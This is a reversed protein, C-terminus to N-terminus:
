HHHFGIKDHKHDGPGLHFEACLEPWYGKAKILLEIAERVAGHGGPNATTYHAIDKVEQRANRVAIAFGVARMAKVDIIDDGIFAVEEPALGEEKMLALVSELKKDWNGLEIFNVRQHTAWLFTATSQSGSIIGTKIGAMRCMHLGSSDQTGFSKAKFNEGNIQKPSKVKPAIGIL